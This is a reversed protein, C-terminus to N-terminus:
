ESSASQPIDTREERGLVSPISARLARESKLPTHIPEDNKTRPVDRVNRAFDIMEYTATYQSGLRLGTNLSFIVEALHEPYDNRVVTILREYEGDPERDLFRVRSNDERRHRIARAPNETVKGARLAERYVLMLLSRYHNFTSAAWGESKAVANLRQEMAHGNLDNAPSNGFMEVLKTMRSKDDRYSRRYARSYELADDGIEKFLITRARLNGLKKGAVAEGRRKDLLKKAQSYSGAVERRYRGGSDVYRIWYTQSDAKQFVGREMRQETM